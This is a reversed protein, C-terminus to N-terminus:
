SLFSFVVFMGEGNSILGLEALIQGYHKAVTTKGTGPSGLFVRNLSVADPQLEQLERQYNLITMDFLNQVSKKVPDLGIM